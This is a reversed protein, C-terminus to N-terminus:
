ATFQDQNIGDKIFELGNKVDTIEAEISPSAADKPGSQEDEVFSVTKKKLNSDVLERLKSGGQYVQEAVETEEPNLHSPQEQGQKSDSAILVEGEEQLEEEAQNQVEPESKNM